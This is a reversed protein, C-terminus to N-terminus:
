FLKFNLEQVISGQLNRSFVIEESFGM